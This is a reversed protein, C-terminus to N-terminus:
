APVPIQRQGVTLPPHLSRHPKKGRVEWGCATLTEELTGKEECESFLIEVAEDFNKSAEEFTSGCSSLDLVPSYAVFVDNEKLYLVPIQGEIKLGNPM